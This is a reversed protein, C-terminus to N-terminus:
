RMRDQYMSPSVQPFSPPMPHPPFYYFLGGGGGGGGQAGGGDRGWTHFDCRNQQLSLRSPLAHRPIFVIVRVGGAVRARRVHDSSSESRQLCRGYSPSVAGTGIERSYSEREPQVCYIPVAFSCKVKCTM